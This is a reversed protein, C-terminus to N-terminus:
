LLVIDAIQRRIKRRIAFSGKRTPYHYNSLFVIGVHKIPDCVVSCGTFGTKGFTQKTCYQGMYHPQYREWGLGENYMRHVIEESFYQMGQYTGKNLLMELFTLLDSVTSFMGASGVVMKERLVYASEDHVEGQIVKGRWPDIETPVIEERSFKEPHFTTRRMGLPKFFIEDAVTDLQKGYVREVVLGLLISTANAYSYKEGPNSRFESTFIINFIEEPSKDKYSSLRFEFDLTQTLLHKVLVKERDSNRFEPVFDILKNSLHLRGEDILKLALCATPISKTISAVDFISNKRVPSANHEYTFRGFPFVLQEGNKSIGVVCGPFVKEKIAQSIIKEIANKPNSM